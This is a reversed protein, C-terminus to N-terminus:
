DSWNIIFTGWNSEAGVHLPDEQVSDIRWRYQLGSVVFQKLVERSLAHNRFQEDFDELPEIWEVFVLVDSFDEEIRLIYGNPLPTEEFVWKFELIGPDSLDTGLPATLRGKQVLRYWTTDSPMSETGEDNVATIYYYYSQDEEIQIFDTFLHYIGDFVFEGGPDVRAHLVYNILGDPDESRYVNFHDLDNREPHEHWMLRIGNEPGAEADIGMIEYASTDSGATKSVLVPAVPPDSSVGNDDTCSVFFLISNLILFYSILIKM